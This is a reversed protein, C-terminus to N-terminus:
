SAPRRTLSPVPITSLGSGMAKQTPEVLFRAIADVTPPRAVYGGEVETLCDLGYGYIDFWLTELEQGHKSRLM